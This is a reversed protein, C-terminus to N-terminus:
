GTCRLPLALMPEDRVVSAPVSEDAPLVFGRLRVGESWVPREPDTWERISLWLVDSRAGSNQSIAWTTSHLTDAAFCRVSNALPSYRGGRLATGVTIRLTLLVKWPDASMKEALRRTARFAMTHPLAFCRTPSRALASCPSLRKVRLSSLHQSQARAGTLSRRRDRPDLRRRRARAAHGAVTRDSSKLRHVARSRRSATSTSHRTAVRRDPTASATAVLARHASVTPLPAVTAICPWVRANSPAAVSFPRWGM